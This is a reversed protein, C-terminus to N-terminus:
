CTASWGSCCRARGTSGTRARRAPARVRRARSAWSPWARCSSWRTCSRTRSSSWATTRGRAVCRTDAAAGCGSGGVGGGGMGGGGMGGCAAARSAAHVQALFYATDCWKTKVFPKLTSMGDPDSRKLRKWHERVAMKYPEAKKHLAHASLGTWGKYGLSVFVFKALMYRILLEYKDGLGERGIASARDRTCFCYTVFREVVKISPGCSEKFGYRVGHVLLFRLWKKELAKAAVSQKVSDGYLRAREELEEMRREKDAPTERHSAALAEAARAAALSPSRM